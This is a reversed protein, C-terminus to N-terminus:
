EGGLAEVAANVADIQLRGKGIVQGEFYCRWEVPDGEKKFECGFHELTKKKEFGTLPKATVSKVATM